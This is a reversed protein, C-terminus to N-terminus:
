GEMVNIGELTELPKRTSYYTIEDNEISGIVLGYRAMDLTDFVPAVLKKRNGTLPLTSTKVAKVTFPDITSDEVWDTTLITVPESEIRVLVSDDLRANANDATSQAHDAANKAEQTLTGLDNIAGVVSKQEPRRALSINNDEKDQKLQLKDDTYQKLEDIKQQVGPSVYDERIFLFNGDIRFQTNNYAIIGPSTFSAKPVYVYLQEGPLVKPVDPIVMVNVINQESM